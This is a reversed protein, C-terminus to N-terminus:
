VSRKRKRIFTVVAILMIGTGTIYYWDAGRGGTSPLTYDPSESEPVKENRVVFESNDDSSLSEGNNPYSVPYYKIKNSSGTIEGVPNQSDASDVEAIYYYYTNGNEDKAPLNLEKQWNETATLTVNKVFTFDNVSPKVAYLGIKITFTATGSVSDTAKVIVTGEDSYSTIEGTDKDINAYGIGEIIEWTVDGIANNVSLAQTTNKNMTASGIIELDDIVSVLLNKTVGNRSLVINTDGAKDFSKLNYYGFVSPYYYTAIQESNQDEIQVISEDESSFSLNDCPSIAITVTTNKRMKEININAGAMGSVIIAVGSVKVTVKDTSGDDATATIIIDDSTYSDISVVCSKRDESPTLTVAGSSATWTAPQNATVTASEGETLIIDSSTIKISNDCVFTIKVNVSSAGDWWQVANMKVNSIDTPTDFSYTKTYPSTKVELWDDGGAYNNYHFSFGGNSTGTVEIKLSTVGKYNLNNYDYVSTDSSSDCTFEIPEDSMVTIQNNNSLYVDNLSNENVVVNRSNNNLSKQSTTGDNAYTKGTKYVSYLGAAVTVLGANYDLAVENGVHDKCNDKYDSNDGNGGSLAGVIVHGDSTYIGDWSNWNSWNSDVTLGSAARHHLNKVSNDAYGSIFCTSSNGNTAVSNNGLIYNMQGACWDTYSKTDQYKDYILAVTQALTNHRISGWNDGIVTFNSGNCNNLFTTVKSKITSDNSDIRTAYVTAAGLTVDGWFHGRKEVELSDLKNKCATKYTSDQTALYLWAAAWAQESNCESDTYESPSACANYKTSFNYLAKAYKLYNSSETDDPFNMAYLALAAAYQAAINSAGNTTFMENGRQSVTQMEPAGWYSHDTGGEGKQYLFKTVTDGNLTTSEVFFDCFRKMIDKYHSTLGLSDFSDKFENYAWGLTSASFGQPLGFMVHDGADHYGGSVSDNTHCNDRWSYASQEGVDSGCMNADYFYLSYQMLRAYDNYQNVGNETYYSDDYNPVLNSTNNPNFHTAGYSKETDTSINDSGNDSSGNPNKTTRYIALYIENPRNSAKDNSWEKKVTMKNTDPINTITWSTKTNDSTIDKLKWGDPITKEDVSIDTASEPISYNGTYTDGSGTLEVTQTKSKGNVTFKITVDLKDPKTASVVGDPLEWNKTISIDQEKLTNKVTIVGTATIDNGDYTVTFGANSPVTEEVYYTYLNGESEDKDSDIFRELNSWKYHWPTSESGNLTVTYEDSNFSTDVEGSPLKRKLTVTIPEKLSEFDDYGIWEKKVTVSMNAGAKKNPIKVINNEITLSLEDDTTDSGTGSSSTDPMKDAGFLVSDNANINAKGWATGFILNEDQDHIVIVKNNDGDGTEVKIGIVNETSLDQLDFIYNWDAGSLTVDNISSSSGDSYYFTLTKVTPINGDSNYQITKINHPTATSGSGSGSEGYIRVESVQINNDQIQFQVSWDNSTPTISITETDDNILFMISYEDNGLDEVKLTGLSSKFLNSWSSLGSICGNDAQFNIKNDQILAEVESVSSGSIKCIAEIAKVNQYATTINNDGSSIPYNYPHVVYNGLGSSTPEVIYESGQKKVRFSFKEQSDYGSPAKTEKLYYSGSKLYGNQIYESNYNTDGNRIIEFLNFDTDKEIKFSTGDLPYILTDDSAYLQFESGDLRETFDSKWKQFLLKAGSIKIDTMKIEQSSNSLDLSIRQESGDIWYEITKDGTKVFYIDKATEYNDPATKEHFHYITDTILNSIDLTCSSKSSDWAWLNESVSDNGNLLQIEAGKLQMGDSDVKSFLLGTKNEFTLYDSLVPMVMLSEKDYYYNNENYKFTQSNEVGSIGVSNGNGNVKFITGFTSNANNTDGDVTDDAHAMIPKFQILSNNESETTTETETVETTTESTEITPETIETTETESTEPETTESIETESVESAIDEESNLVNYSDNLLSQGDLSYTADEEPTGIKDNDIICISEVTNNEINLGFVEKINGDADKIVIKRQELAINPSDAYADRIQFYFTGISEEENKIEMKVDVVQPITGNLSDSSLLHNQQVTETVIITYTKSTGIYGDPAFSESITYTNTIPDSVNTYNTNGSFDVGTPIEVWKTKDTSTWSTVLEDGNKVDFSAGALNIDTGEILKDFPIAYGAKSGLINSTGRYPRYGFELGGEFTMAILAGSLHGTCAKDSTVDANPAFITGNFNGNITGAVADTFNYLIKSSAPHNNSRWGVVAPNANNHYDNKNYEDRKDLDRNNSIEEETGDSYEMVTKVTNGAGQINFVEGGCNIILNCKPIKKTVTKLEDTETERVVMQTSSVPVNVFRIEELSTYNMGEPLEFYVAEANEMGDPVTFTIKNEVSLDTTGNAAKESLSKSRERLWEFTDNFNIIGSTPQKYMEALENVKVSDHSGEENYHKTENNCHPHTGTEADGVVFRKFEDETPPFYLTDGYGQHGGKNEVLSNIRTMNNGTALPGINSMYGGVIAHAFNEISQYDDTDRLATMYGFNGSGVQYCWSKEFRLNGGVAVRGEADADTLVADGQLFLCFDYAIGLFYTDKAKEAIEDATEAGNAWDLSGDSEGEYSGILLEKVSMQAPSHGDNATSYVYNDLMEKASRGMSLPNAVNDEGDTMSVAPMILGASVGFSVLVSLALTAALCKKHKEYNTIYNQIISQFKKM